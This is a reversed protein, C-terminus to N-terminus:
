LKVFIDTPRMILVERKTVEDTIPTGAFRGYMIRDGPRLPVVTTSMEKELEIVAESRGCSEELLAFLLKNTMSVDNPKGPGVVIVTGRHPREKEIVSEPKHIGGETVAAVPDPYVLVRDEIAQMTTKLLEAVIEEHNEQANLQQDALKRTEAEQSEQHRRVSERQEETLGEGPIFYNKSM